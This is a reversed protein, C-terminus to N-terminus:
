RSSTFTLCAVKNQPKAFCVFLIADFAQMHKTHRHLRPQLAGVSWRQVVHEQVLVAERRGVQLHQSVLARDRRVCLTSRNMGNEIKAAFDIANAPNSLLKQRYLCCRM